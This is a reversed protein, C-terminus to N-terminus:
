GQVKIHGQLATWVFGMIPWIDGYLDQEWKM